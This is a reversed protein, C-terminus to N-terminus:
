KGSCLDAGFRLASQAAYFPAGVYCMSVYVSDTIRKVIQLISSEQLKKVTSYYFRHVLTNQLDVLLQLAGWPGKISM